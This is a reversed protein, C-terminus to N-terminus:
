PSEKKEERKRMRRRAYVKTIEQRNATVALVQSAPQVPVLSSSASQHIVIALSQSDEQLLSSAALPKSQWWADAQYGRHAESLLDRLQQSDFPHVWVPLAEASGAVVLQLDEREASQVEAGSIPPSESEVPGFDDLSAEQNGQVEMQPQPPM